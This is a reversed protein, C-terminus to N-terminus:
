AEGGIITKGRPLSCRSVALFAIALARKRLVNGVVELVADTKSGGKAYWQALAFEDNFRLMFQGDDNNRRIKM